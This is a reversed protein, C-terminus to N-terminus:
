NVVKISFKLNTRRNLSPNNKITRLNQAFNLM